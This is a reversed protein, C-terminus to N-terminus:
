FLDNKFQGHCDEKQPLANDVMLFQFIQGNKKFDFDSIVRIHVFITFFNANLYM